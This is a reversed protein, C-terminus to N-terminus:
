TKEQSSWQKEVEKTAEEAAVKKAEELTLGKKNKQEALFTKLERVEPCGECPQGLESEIQKRFKSATGAEQLYINDYKGSAVADSSGIEILTGAWESLESYFKADKGQRSAIPITERAHRRLERAAKAICDCPKGAIRGKTPLHETELHLLEDLLRDHQYTLTEEDTVAKEGESLVLTTSPTTDQVITAKPSTRSHESIRRELEELDKDSSGHPVFREIPLRAVINFVGNVIDWGNM